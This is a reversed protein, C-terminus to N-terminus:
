KLLITYKVHDYVEAKMITLKGKWSWITLKKHDYVKLSINHDYLKGIM